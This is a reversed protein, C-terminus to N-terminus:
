YELTLVRASIGQDILKDKAKIAEKKTKYDGAGVWYLFQLKHVRYIRKM